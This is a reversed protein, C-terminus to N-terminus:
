AHLDEGDEANLFLSYSSEVRHLYQAYRYRLSTRSPPPASLDEASSSSSPVVVSQLVFPAFIFSADTFSRGRRGLLFASQMFFPDVYVDWLNCLTGAKTVGLTAPSGIVPRFQDDGHEQLVGLMEPSVLIWNAGSRRTKRHIHHSERKLFNVFDDFDARNEINLRVKRPQLKASLVHFNARDIELAVNEAVAAVLDAMSVSHADKLIMLTENAGEPTWRSKLRQSQAQVPKPKMEIRIEPIGDEKTEELGFSRLWVYSLPQALAQVSFLHRSACKHFAQVMLYVMWDQVEQSVNQPNSERYVRRQNEALIAAQKKQWENEWHFGDLFARHRELLGRVRRDWASSLPSLRLSGDGGLFVKITDEHNRAFELAAAVVRSANMGKIDGLEEALDRAWQHLSEPVTASLRKTAEGHVTSRAM